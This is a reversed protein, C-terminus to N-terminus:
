KVWRVKRIAYVLIFLGVSIGIFLIILMLSNTEPNETKSQQNLYQESREYIMSDEVVVGDSTMGQYMIKESGVLKAEELSEEDNILTLIKINKFYAFVNNDIKGDYNNIVFKLVHTGDKDIVLRNEKYLISKELSFKSNDLEYYINGFFKNDNVLSIKSDFSIIDGKNADFKFSIFAKDDDLKELSNFAWVNNEYDLIDSTSSSNNLHEETINVYSYWEYNGKNGVCDECITYSNYKSVDKNEFNYPRLVIEINSNKDGVADINKVIWGNFKELKIGFIDEYSGVDLNDNIKLEFTKTGYIFDNDKPKLVSYKEFNEKDNVDPLYIITVSNKYTGYDNTYDDNLSLKSSYEIFTGEKLDDVRFISSANVNGIFIFLFFMLCLVRKM